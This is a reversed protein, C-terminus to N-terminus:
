KAAVMLWSRATSVKTRCDIGDGDQGFATSGVPKCRLCGDYHSAATGHQREAAAGGMYTSVRFRSKARPFAEPWSGLISTIKSM